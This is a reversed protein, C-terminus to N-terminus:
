VRRLERDIRDLLEKNEPDIKRVFLFEGKGYVADDFLNGHQKITLFHDQSIIEPHYNLGRWDVYTLSPATQKVYKSNAIITHFFIEDPVKCYKFFSLYSVNKELFDFIYSVAERSFAWWQHGAYPKIGKLKKQYNRKYLLDLAINVYYTALNHFVTLPKSQPHFLAEIHIKELRELAKNENERLIPMPALSIYEHHNGLFFQKIYCNSKVPYDAGSLLLFRDFKRPDSFAKQLLTLTAEVLSFGGWNVYHRDQILEVNEPGTLIDFTKIDTKRDIHIFFATDRTSLTSVLRKLQGPNEHALILYALRIQKSQISM